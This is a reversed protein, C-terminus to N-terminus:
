EMTAVSKQGSIVGRVDEAFRRAELSPSEGDVCVESFNDGLEAAGGLCGAEAGQKRWMDNVATIAGNGDLVAIGSAIVDISDQM